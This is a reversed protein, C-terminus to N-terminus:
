LSSYEGPMTREMSKVDPEMHPVHLRSVRVIRRAQRCAVTADRHRQLGPSAARVQM